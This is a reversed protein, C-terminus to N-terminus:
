LSGFYAQIESPTSSSVVFTYSSDTSLTSYDDFSMWETFKYGTKPTATLTVTDGINFTYTGGGGVVSGNRSVQVSGNTADYIKVQKTETSGGSPAQEFYAVMKSNGSHVVSFPNSKFGREDLCEWEKFVYGNNATATYSIASNKVCYTDSYVDTVAEPSTTVSGAGAPSVSIDVKVYNIDGDTCHVTIRSPDEFANKISVNAWQAKTGNYNIETIDLCTEFAYWGISTFGSPLTISTLNLCTSFCGDAIWTRGNPIVVSTIDSRGAYHSMNEINTSQTGVYLVGDIIIDSNHTTSGGSPDDSSDSYSVNVDITGGVNTGNFKVGIYYTDGARMNYTFKFNGNGASDDDTILKNAKTSDFLCGGPDSAINAASAVSSVTYHGSTPPVFKILTFEEAACDLGGENGTGVNVRKTEGVSITLEGSSGGSSLNTVCLDVTGSLNASYFKVAIYYTKGAVCDYTYLFHNNEDSDDNNALMESKTSDYLRGCTDGYSGTVAEFQYTGSTTPVFRVLTFDSLEADSEGSNTSKAVDITKTEGASITLEDSLSGNYSVKVTLMGTGYYLTAALYYTTGAVFNDYTCIFGSGGANDFDFAESQDENYIGGDPDLSVQDLSEFTYSGSYQPVFKLYVKEKSVPINVLTEVGETITLEGSQIVEFYAIYTKDESATILRVAETSGDSWRVFQCGTNPTAQIGVRTGSLFTGGGTVTGYSTNNSQVTITYFTGTQTGCNDCYGDNNGDNHGTADIYLDRYTHGCKTCTYETYGQETCTPAFEKITLDHICGTADTYNGIYSDKCRSCTYTTYGQETETPPTVDAVYDHGLAPIEQQESTGCGSCIRVKAGKNDCTAARTVTEIYSHTHTDSASGDVKLFSLSGDTRPIFAFNGFKARENVEVVINGTHFNNGDWWGFPVGSKSFIIGNDNDITLLMGNAGGVSIGNENFSIYKSVKEFKSQLDGDVNNIQTTATNFKMDIGEARVEFESSVEEKYSEFASKEIYSKAAILSIQEETREIDTTQSSIVTKIEALEEDVDETFKKWKYDEPNMSDAETTDVYTGIWAGLVEGNEDTFTKGGDDSYKIHWYQSDGKIGKDGYVGIILPDTQVPDGETYVIVEYNWLYRDTATMTPLDQSWDDSGPITDKDNSLAYWEQIEAIGVGKDGDKAYNGILSPTSDTYSNNTYITREFNWLYPKEKTLKEINDLLWGAATPNELGENTVGSSKDTTLYYNEVRAVGTGDIGRIKIWTYLKHDTPAEEANTSCTGMYMTNEDPTNTMEHGDEYPSYMIYLYTGDIGEVKTNLKNLSNQTVSVKGSLSSTDLKINDISAKLSEYRDQQIESLTKFNDGIEFNSQVEDTVNITKKTIRATDDIGLLPNIIPHYNHVDFDDIDLGLLSLDLASISYKVQVKSNAVLYDRARSLLTSAVTVDDWYAYGVHIGYVEVGDAVDIYNKGDNVSTIDLRDETEVQEGDVEKKLKAGLPILRSIFSSPDVEKTISKMNKSMRIETARHVGIETLYDIYLGDSEVRFRIEGGLKNILTENITQWTNERQIGIYVNDNPDTVTVTGIKFRKYEEVQENHRDIIHQLLGTVTWNQTDVYPQQSDCLFGFYSECTVEKTILGDSDMTSNSYLVRGFFDYRKKNTNYVSVLTTFDNILDFGANDPLLTFSFSDITNIGKVVSGSKLKQKENHIPTTINGNTLKVIYM